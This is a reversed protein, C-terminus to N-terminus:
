RSALKYHDALAGLGRRLLEAATTHRMHWFEAYGRITGGNLVWLVAQTFSEDLAALTSGVHRQAKLQQESIATRDWPAVHGESRPTVPMSRQSREMANRLMEGADAQRQDITGERLLVLLHDTRRARRITRKPAHPDPGDGVTVDADRLVVGDHARILELRIGPGYVQGTWCRPRRSTRARATGCAGRGQEAPDGPAAGSRGVRAASRGCPPERPACASRAAV